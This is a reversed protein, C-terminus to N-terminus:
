KVGAAILKVINALDHEFEARKRDAAYVAEREDDYAWKLRDLERLCRQDPRWRM